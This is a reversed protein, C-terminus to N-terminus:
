IDLIFARTRLASIAYNTVTNIIKPDNSTLIRHMINIQPRPVDQTITSTPHAESLILEKLHPHIYKQRLIDLQPCVFLFHDITDFSELNCVTCPSGPDFKQKLGGTGIIFPFKLSALRLQSWIIRERLPISATLYESRDIYLPQPKLDAVRCTTSNILSKIDEEIYFTDIAKCIDDLKEALREPSQIRWVDEFNIKQLILKIKWAWNQINQDQNDVLAKLKEYMKRPTRDPPMALIKQWYKIMKKYILPEVKTRGAEVRVAHSATTRRVGLTQKLFKLQVPELLKEHGFGWTEAEYLMCTEVCKDFLKIKSKWNQIKGKHAVRNTANLALLGKNKFHRAAKAFSGSNSLPVGLYTYQAVKEVELGNYM